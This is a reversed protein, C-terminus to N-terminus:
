KEKTSDSSEISKDKETTSESSEISKDKETTSLITNISDRDKGLLVEETYEKYSKLYETPSPITDRNKSFYEEKFAKDVDKKQVDTLDKALEQGTKVAEISHEKNFNFSKKNEEMNELRNELELREKIDDIVKIENKIKSVTNINEDLARIWHDKGDSEWEKKGDYAKVIQDLQYRQSDLLREYQKKEDTTLDRFDMKTKFTELKEITDQESDGKSEETEGKSEETEGQSEETEAQSEETEGKNEEFLSTLDKGINKDDDFIDKSPKFLTRIDKGINKDNDFIDKSDNDSKKVEIDYNQTSDDSTYSNYIEDNTDLAKYYKKNYENITYNPHCSNLLEFEENNLESINNFEYIKEEDYTIFYVIGCILILLCILLYIIIDKVSMEKLWNYKFNKLKNYLFEYISKQKSIDIKKNDYFYLINVNYFSFDILGQFIEKLDIIEAKNSIHYSYLRHPGRVLVNIGSNNFSITINNYYKNYPVLSLKHKTYIIISLCKIKDAKYLVMALVNPVFIKPILVNSVNPVLIFDKFDVLIFHKNESFMINNKFIFPQTDVWLNNEGYIKIRKKYSFPNLDIENDFINVYGQEYNKKSERRIVSIKTGEEYMKKYDNINLFDSNVGKAKKVTKNNKTVLVYTKNSIFYGYKVLHELKFKGIQNDDILENPLPINTVISDTDSYYIEGGRKLIDLKIKSMFIRAYSTVASSIAVSVDEFDKDNEKIEKFVKNYDLNLKDLYYTNIDKSYRILKYNDGFFICSSINRTAAIQQYEDENVLDTISKDLKLGYYGLLSNLLYKSSSKLAMNRTTSKIKYLDEVYKTFINSDKGFIYGRKVEINYGHQKAFKLEESFYWGEWEGLPFVL